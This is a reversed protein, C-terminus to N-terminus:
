SWRMTAIRIATGRMLNAEGDCAGSIGSQGQRARRLGARWSGRLSPAAIWETSGPTTPRPPARHCTLASRIFWLSRRPAFRQSPGAHIRRHNMATIQENRRAKDEATCGPKIPPLTGDRM